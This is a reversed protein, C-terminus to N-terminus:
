SHEAMAPDARLEGAAVLTACCAHLRRERGGMMRVRAEWAMLQSPVATCTASLRAAATCVNFGVTCQWGVFNLEANSDKHGLRVAGYLRGGQIQLPCTSVKKAFKKRCFNLSLQTPRQWVNM